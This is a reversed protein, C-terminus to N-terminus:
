CKFSCITNIVKRIHGKEDYSIEVTGSKFDLVHAALLIRLNEAAVPDAIIIQLEALNM